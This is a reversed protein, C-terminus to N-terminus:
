IKPNGTHADWFRIIGDGRASALIKGEPSFALNYFDSKHETLIRKGEGTHADWLHIKNERYSSSALTNGAPNFTLHRAARSHGTLKFKLEGTNLDNINISCDQDVMVNTAAFTNRIPNFAVSHECNTQEQITQKHKGTLASWLSIEGYISCSFIAEGNLSFALNTIIGSSEKTITNKLEGTIADCIHITNRYGCALSNGDPSFALIPSRITFSSLTKDSPEIVTKCSSTRRDWLLIAGNM